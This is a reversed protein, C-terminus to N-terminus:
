ISNRYARYGYLVFEIILHLGFIYELMRVCIFWVVFFCACVCVGVHTSLCIIHLYLYIDLYTFFMHTYIYIYM